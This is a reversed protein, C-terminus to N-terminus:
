AWLYRLKHNTGAKHRSIISSIHSACTDIEHTNSTSSSKNVHSIESLTEVERKLAYYLSQKWDEIKSARTPRQLIKVAMFKGSDVDIAKHVTGFQGSGLAGGVKVYRMKLQQPGPTHLRTERRSPLDTPAEDVTRALRPNEVRGCSLTDYNKIAEATQTLDQHWELEFQILDRREGGMGIITNLDEQILVKRVRGHEFPTANEGSVQTTCGHSRDYFMGVRTDLDIEFSCQVKAISSGEVCIDAEVGRGLTALTTSSKGRIHFGVDLAEVGDPSTSVHRINNPHSVAREARENGPKPVLSFLALPHPPRPMGSSTLLFASILSSFHYFDPLPRFTVCSLFACATKCYKRLITTGM